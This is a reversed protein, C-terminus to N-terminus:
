IHWKSRFKEDGITVYFIPDKSDLVLEKYNSRVIEKGLANWIHVEDKNNKIRLGVSHIITLGTVFNFQIYKLIIIRIRDSSILIDFPTTYWNSTNTIFFQILYYEAILDVDM